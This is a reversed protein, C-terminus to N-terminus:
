NIEKDEMNANRDGNIYPKSPKLAKISARKKLKIYSSWKKSYM